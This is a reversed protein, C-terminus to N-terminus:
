PSITSYEVANEVIKKMEDIHDILCTRGHNRTGVAHCYTKKCCGCYTVSLNNCKVCRRSKKYTKGKKNTVVPYYCIRPEKNKEPSQQLSLSMESIEEEEKDLICKIGMTSTAMSKMVNNAKRLLQKTLIGAFVNISITFEANHKMQLRSFLTHYLSFKWVDVVNIGILTTTLRFWPDRTDWKKELGLEYQRAQNHKDVCNSSEFYNSIVAPRDVLRVHVNGHSDTFKMEYPSGRKTSGANKTMVFHLTVKSNYRYGIAVLEPGDPHKGELVIHCGGPGDKLADEIFQKPFLGHNTKIQYITGMGRKSAEAAAKVSGFWADGMLITKADPDTETSEGARITCAATAGLEQQYQRPKM